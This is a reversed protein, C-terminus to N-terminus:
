FYARGTAERARLAARSEDLYCEIGDTDPHTAGFVRRAIRQVDELTNVTERLDDLTAAADRYIAEGYFCRMTLTIRHSEGLVRRAVPMLRRTLSRSEEFRRKLKTLMAAYNNAAHDNIIPPVHAKTVSQVGM